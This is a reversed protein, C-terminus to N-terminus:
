PYASSPPPTAMSTSRGITKSKSCTTGAPKGAGPTPRSTPMSYSHTSSVSAYPPPITSPTSTIRNVGSPALAVGTVVQHTAAILSQLMSAAQDRTTPQGLLQGNPAVVVTDAALIIPDADAACDRLNRSSVVSRAKALALSTALAQPSASLSPAPQAPDNFPPDIQEFRYGADRLLRARRPSRSALVLLPPPM